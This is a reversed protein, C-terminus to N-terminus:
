AGWLGLGGVARPLVSQAGGLGGVERPLASQAGSVWRGRQTSNVLCGM